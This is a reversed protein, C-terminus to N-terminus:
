LTSSVPGFFDSITTLDFEFGCGDCELLFCLLALQPPLAVVALLAFLLLDENSDDDLSDRKGVNYTAVAEVVVDGYEEGRVETCM